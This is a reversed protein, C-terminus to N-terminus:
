GPRSPDASICRSFKAWSQVDKYAIDLPSPINSTGDTPCEPHFCVLDAMAELSEGTVQGTRQSGVCGDLAAKVGKWDKGALLIELRWIRLSSSMKIVQETSPVGDILADMADISEILSRDMQVQDEYACKEDFVHRGVKGDRRADAMRGGCAAFRCGAEHMRTAESEEIGMPVSRAESILDAAVDFLSCLDATSLSESPSSPDACAHVVCM